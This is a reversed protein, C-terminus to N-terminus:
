FEIGAQAKIGKRLPHKVAKMETVLDAAELLAEPAGRGTVVVHLGSPRSRLAAIVQSEDLHGRRLVINLEDLLLFRLDPDRLHELAKGWGAEALRRDAEPDRTEWSFGQGCRDWALSGGSVGAVQALIVEATPQGGKIFQVVACPFGHGLARALMGLAATTKGKGDGTHVVLLGTTPSGDPGQPM